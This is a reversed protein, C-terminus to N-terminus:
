FRNMRCRAARLHLWRQHPAAIDKTGPCEAQNGAGSVAGRMLAYGECVQMARM